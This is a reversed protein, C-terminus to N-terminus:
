WPGRIICVAEFIAFARQLPKERWPRSCLQATSIAACRREREEVATRKPRKFTTVRWLFTSEHNNLQVLHLFSCLSFLNELCFSTFYLFSFIFCFWGLGIHWTSSLINKSKLRELFVCISNILPYLINKSIGYCRISPYADPWQITAPSFLDNSSLTNAM